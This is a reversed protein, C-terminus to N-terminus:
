KKWDVQITKFPLRPPILWIKGFTKYDKIQDGIKQMGIESNQENIPFDKVTLLFKIEESQISIEKLKSITWAPIAITM